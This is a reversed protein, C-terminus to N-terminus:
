RLDLRRAATIAEARTAVGLVRRIRRSHARVDALPIDLREAIERYSLESPLLALLRRDADTLGDAEPEPATPVPLERIEAELADILRALVPVVASGLLGRAAELADVAGGCRRRTRPRPRAM